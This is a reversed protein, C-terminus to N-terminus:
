FLSTAYIPSAISSASGTRFTFLEYLSFLIDKFSYLGPVAKVPTTPRVWSWDSGAQGSGGRALSPAALTKNM